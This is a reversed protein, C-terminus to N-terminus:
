GYSKKREPKTNLFIKLDTICEDCLDRIDLHNGLTTLMCMGSYYQAQASNYRQHMCNSDYYAGCRDCKKANAM